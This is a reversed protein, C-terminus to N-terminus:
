TVIIATSWSGTAATCALAEGCSTRSASLTSGGKAVTTFRQTITGCGQGAVCGGHGPLVADVVPDSEPRLASGGLPPDLHWYTSHLVVTVVAGLRVTVTKQNTSEDVTVDGDAAVTPTAPATESTAPV